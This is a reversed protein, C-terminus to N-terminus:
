RSGSEETRSQGALESILGAAAVVFAAYAVVGLVSTSLFFLPVRPVDASSGTIMRPLAFRTAIQILTQLLFAGFLLATWRSRKLHPASVVVGAVSLVLSLWGLLTQATGAWLMESM